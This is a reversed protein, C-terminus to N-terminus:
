VCACVKETICPLVVVNPPRESSGNPAASSNEADGDRASSSAGGGGLLHATPCALLLTQMARQLPSTLWLTDPPLNLKALEKRLAIAQTCPSPLCPPLPNPATSGFQVPVTIGTPDKGLQLQVAGACEGGAQVSGGWLLAHIM